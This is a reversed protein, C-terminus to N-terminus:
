ESVAVPWRKIIPYLIPYQDCTNSMKRAWVVAYCVHCMKNCKRVLLIQLQYLVLLGVLLSRTFIFLLLLSFQYKAQENLLYQVCTTVSTVHTYRVHCVSYHAYIPMFYWYYVVAFYWNYSWHFWEICPHVFGPMWDAFFLHKHKAYRVHCWHLPRSWCYLPCFYAHIILLM